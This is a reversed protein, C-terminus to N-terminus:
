LGCLFKHLKRCTADFAREDAETYLHRCYPGGDGCVADRLKDQPPDAYENYTSVERIIEGGLLWLNDLHSSVTKDALNSEVLFEAFPRMAALLEEGYVRDEELGMWREPWEPFHPCLADLTRQKM